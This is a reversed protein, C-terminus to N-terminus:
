LTRLSRDDDAHFYRVDVAPLERQLEHALALGQRVWASLAEASGWGDDILASREYTENWTRLRQVLSDSVDLESLSVPGGGGRPRDWVPDEVGHEAMVLLTERGPGDARWELEFGRRRKGEILALLDLLASRDRALDALGGGAEIHGRLFDGAVQTAHPGLMRDIHDQMFTLVEDPVGGREYAEETLLWAALAELTEAVHTGEAEAAGLVDDDGVDLDQCCDAFRHSQERTRARGNPSSRRDDVLVRERVTASGLTPVGVEPPTHDELVHDSRTDRDLKGQRL